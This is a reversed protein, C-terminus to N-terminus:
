MSGTESRFDTASDRRMYECKELAIKLLNINDLLSSYETAIDVVSSDLPEEYEASNHDQIARLMDSADRLMETASLRLEAPVKRTYLLNKITKSASTLKNIDLKKEMAFSVSSTLFVFLM